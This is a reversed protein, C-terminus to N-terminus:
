RGRRPLLVRSCLSLRGVRVHSFYSGGSNPNASRTGWREGNQNNKKFGGEEGGLGVPPGVGGGGTWLHLLGGEFPACTRVGPVVLRCVGQTKIGGGGGHPM